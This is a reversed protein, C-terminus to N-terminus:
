GVRERAAVAARHVAARCRHIPGGALDNSPRHVHPVPPCLDRVLGALLGHDAQAETYEPAQSADLGVIPMGRVPPGNRALRRCWVLWRDSLVYVSTRSTRDSGETRGISQARPHAPRPM